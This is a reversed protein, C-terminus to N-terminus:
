MVSHNLRQEQMSLTWTVPTFSKLMMTTNYRVCEEARESDSWVAAEILQKVWVREIWLMFAEYDSVLWLQNWVTVSIMDSVDFMFSM